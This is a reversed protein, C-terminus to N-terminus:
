HNAEIITISVRVEEMEMNGPHAQWQFSRPRPRYLLVEQWGNLSTKVCYATNMM